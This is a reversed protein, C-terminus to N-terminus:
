GPKLPHSHNQLDLQPLSIIQPSSFCSEPFFCIRRVATVADALLIDGNKGKANREAAVVPSSKKKGKQEPKIM